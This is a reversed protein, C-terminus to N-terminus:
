ILLSMWENMLIEFQYMPVVLVDSCTCCCICQFTLNYHFLQLINFVIVFLMWSMILAVTLWYNKKREHQLNKKIKELKKSCSEKSYEKGFEKTFEKDFERLYGIMYEGKNCDGALNNDVTKTGSKWEIEDLEDDWIFLDCIIGTQM